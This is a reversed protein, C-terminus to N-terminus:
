VNRQLKTARTKFEAWESLLEWAVALADHPCAPCCWWTGSGHCQSKCVNGFSSQAERQSTLYAWVFTHQTVLCMQCLSFCGLMAPDLDVKIVEPRLILGINCFHLMPQWFLCCISVTFSLCMASYTPKILICTMVIMRTALKCRLLAFLRQSKAPM